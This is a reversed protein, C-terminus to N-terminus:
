GPSPSAMGGAVQEPVTAALFDVFSRVRASLHPRAIYSAWVTPGPSVFNKLV